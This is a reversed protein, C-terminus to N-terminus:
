SPASKKFMLSPLTSRRTRIAIPWRCGGVGTCQPLLVDAHIMFPVTLFCIDRDIFYTEEPNYVLDRVFLKIYLQVRSFFIKCIIECFVKVCLMVLTHARPIYM